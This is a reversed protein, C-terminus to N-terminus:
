ETKLERSFLAEVAIEPAVGGNLIADIQLTIPMDVNHAKALAKVQQTTTASEVVQGISKQAQKLNKGQGIALGFRRNRSQDDTCTLVLDGMGSLGMLTKPHAGLAAGLRMMESLGRTILGARANAGFGMGDSIGCAVALVNKVAGGIQVGLLDDSAYARFYNHSFAKVLGMACDKKESAIIVATPMQKAVERAFSPGSLLAYDNNPLIRQAVASLMGGDSTLGKTVSLIVQSSVAAKISTLIEEFVHSPTAVMIVDSSTVADRIHNTVHLTQPFACGPLYARNEGASRMASVHKEDRAWLTVEHGSHALHLALASGWSGAGIVAFRM